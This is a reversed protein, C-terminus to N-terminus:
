AAPALVSRDLAVPVATGMMELLVKLRGTEDLQELRAVSDAFPGSLIRVRQGESLGHDLRMLGGGAREIVSLYRPFVVARVATLQRAHRVTKKFRPIYTRFGQADLHWKAKQESKPLTYVLFWRENGVLVPYKIQERSVSL